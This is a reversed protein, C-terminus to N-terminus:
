TQAYHYGKELIEFYKGIKAHTDAFDYFSRVIAVIQHDFWSYLFFAILPM